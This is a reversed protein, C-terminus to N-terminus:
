HLSVSIHRAMSCVVLGNVDDLEIGHPVDGDLRTLAEKHDNM